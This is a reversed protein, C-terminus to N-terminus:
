DLSSNAAPWRLVSSRPMQPSVPRHFKSVFFLFRLELRKKQFLSTDQDSAAEYTSAQVQLIMLFFMDVSFSILVADRTGFDGSSGYSPASHDASYSSTPKYGDEDNFQATLQSVFSTGTVQDFLSMKNSLPITSGVTLQTFFPQSDWDQELLPSCQLQLRLQPENIKKM